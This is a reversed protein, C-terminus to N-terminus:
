RLLVSIVTSSPAVFVTTGSTITEITFSTTSSVEPITAAVGVTVTKIGLISSCFADAAREIRLADVVLSVDQCANRAPILAQAGSLVLALVLGYGSQIAM